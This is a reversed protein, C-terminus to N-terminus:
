AGAFTIQASQVVTGNPLAVNFYFSGAQVTGFQVVVKGTADTTLRYTSNALLTEATGTTGTATISTIGTLSSIYGIVTTVETLNENSYNKLQVTVDVEDSTEEGVNITAIYPMEGMLLAVDATLDGVDATLGAVETTLDSLVDYLEGRGFGEGITKKLEAM